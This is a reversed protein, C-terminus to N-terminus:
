KLVQEGKPVYVDVNYLQTLHAGAALKMQVFGERVDGAALIKGIPIGPPIQENMFSTSVKMESKLRNNEPIFLLKLNGKDDGNVVGLDRTEDVAAAILFSSSTIMEVWSYNVGVRVVKGVLYGESMVAAGLVVGHETGKDIRFNQWWEEPYRLTVFANLYGSKTLVPVSITKQLASRMAHNEVELSAVRERLTARELLWNSSFKIINRLEMVPKEPYYLVTNVTDVFLTRAGPLATMVSLIVIGLLVSLAGHIWPVPERNPIKM